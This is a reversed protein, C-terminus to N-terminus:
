EYKSTTGFLAQRSNTYNWNCKLDQLPFYDKHIDVNQIPPLQVNFCSFKLFYQYLPIVDRESNFNYKTIETETVHRQFRFKNDSIYRVFRQQLSIHKTQYLTKSLLM